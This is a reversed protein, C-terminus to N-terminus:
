SDKRTLIKLTIDYAMYTDQFLVKTAEMPVMARLGDLIAFLTEVDDDLANEAKQPDTQDNVLTIVYNFLYAGRPAEPAKTITSQKFMVLPADLTDVNDQYPILKWATPIVARLAEELQSRVSM